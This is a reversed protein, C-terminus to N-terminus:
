RKGARKQWREEVVMRWGAKKLWIRMLADRPYIGKRMMVRRNLVTQKRLHITTWIGPRLLM